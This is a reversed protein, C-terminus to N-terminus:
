DETEENIIFKGDVVDQWFDRCNAYSGKTGAKIEDRSPLVNGYYDYTRKKPLMCAGSELAAMAVRGYSGEMKWATGDNIMTQMGYFQYDQQLKKIQASNM